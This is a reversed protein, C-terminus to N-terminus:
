QSSSPYLKSHYKDCYFKLIIMCDQLLHIYHHFIKVPNQHKEPPNPIRPPVGLLYSSNVSCGPRGNPQIANYKYFLVAM